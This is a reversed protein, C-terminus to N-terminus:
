SLEAAAQLALRTKGVGPPGILTLLRIDARLVSERVAAVIPARGILPTAPVPPIGVARHPTLPLSSGPASRASNIFAQRESLPVQLQDALREAIQRSPRLAGTEIKQITVAACGVQRALEEQTMDLAKRRLKLWSGFSLDSM